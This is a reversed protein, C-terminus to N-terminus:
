YYTEYSRLEEKKRSLLERMQEARRGLRVTEANKRKEKKAAHFRRDLREIEEELVVIEEKLNKVKQSLTAKETDSRTIDTQIRSRAAYVSSLENQIALTKDEEEQMYKNYACGSALLFVYVSGLFNGAVRAWDFYQM